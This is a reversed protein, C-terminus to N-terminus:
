DTESSTQIWSFTVPLGVSGDVGGLRFDEPYFEPGMFSRIAGVRQSGLGWGLVEFLTNCSEGM